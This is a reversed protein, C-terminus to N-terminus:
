WGPEKQGASVKRAGVKESIMMTSIVAGGLINQRALLWKEGEENVHKKDRGLHGLQHYLMRGAFSLAMFM